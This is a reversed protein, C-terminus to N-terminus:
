KNIRNNIRPFLLLVLGSVKLIIASYFLMKYVLPIPVITKFPMSLLILTVGALILYLWLQPKFGKERFTFILFLAKLLIAISFLVWFCFAPLGTWRSILALLLTGLGIYLFAKSHKM